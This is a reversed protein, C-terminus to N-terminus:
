VNQAFRRRDSLQRGTLKLTLADFSGNGSVALYDCTRRRPSSRRSRGPSTPRSQGVILHIVRCASAVQDSAEPPHSGIGLTGEMRRNLGQIAVLLGMQEIEVAISGATAHPPFQQRIVGGRSERTELPLNSVTQKSVAHRNCASQMYASQPHGGIRTRSLTWRARM